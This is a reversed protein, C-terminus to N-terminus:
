TRSGSPRCPWTRYGATEGTRGPSRPGPAALVQVAQLWFSLAVLLCPLLALPMLRPASSGILVTTPSAGVATGAVGTLVTATGLRLRLRQRGTGGLPHCLMVAVAMLMGVVVFSTQVASM